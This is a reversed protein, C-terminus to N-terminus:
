NYSITASKFFIGIELKFISTKFEKVALLDFCTVVTHLFVNTKIQGYKPFKERLFTTILLVQPCRLNHRQCIKGLRLFVPLKDSGDLTVSCRQVKLICLHEFVTKNKDYISLLCQLSNVESGKLDTDINHM